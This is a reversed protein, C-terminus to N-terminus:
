RTVWKWAVVLVFLIIGSLCGWARGQQLKQNDIM